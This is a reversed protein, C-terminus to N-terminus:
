CPKRKNMLIHQNLIIKCKNTRHTYPVHSLFSPWFLIPPLQNAQDVMLTKPVSSPPWTQHCAGKDVSDDGASINILVIFKGWMGWFDPFLDMEISKQELKPTLFPVCIMLLIFTKDRHRSQGPLFFFDARYGKSHYLWWTSCVFYHALRELLVKNIGVATPWVQRVPWSKCKHQSSKLLLWSSVHSM